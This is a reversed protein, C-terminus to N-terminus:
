AFSIRQALFFLKRTASFFLFSVQDAQYRWIRRVNVYIASAIVMSTMRFQGRVPLKGAPFPHKVSRVTAEVAARLNQGTDKHALFDKRRQAAKVQKLTFSLLFRRDRKQPKTRCRGDKQFPCISCIDPDFRAHLGTTRAPTIATNQGQPCTIDIPTGQPDFQMDFDSLHFKQPDPKPGRIATQILKVPQNELATDSAQGGFGGDTMLTDLDTRKQLNPLAEALLQDDDTNNPAVQM